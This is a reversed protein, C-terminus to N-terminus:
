TGRMDPNLGIPFEMITRSDIATEAVESAMRGMNGCAIEM